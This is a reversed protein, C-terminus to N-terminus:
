ISVDQGGKYDPDCILPLYYNQGWKPHVTWLAQQPPEFEFNCMMAFEDYGSMSGNIILKPTMTLRHFHGVVLTTYLQVFEPMSMAAAKKKMDGRTIPGLPGIIGDGGRFQDGHTMRYRRGAVMFTLDRAPPCDFTVKGAKVLDQCLRELMQCILWDFNTEAYFRAYPKRTNRGHNGPLGKIDVHGFEKVLTRIVKQLNDTMDLTQGMIQRENSQSLDEHLNGSVLDGNLLLVIGEYNNPRLHDRLLRMAKEVTYQLRKRAIDMNYENVGFVEAPNVTQGWHLDSILLVPHGVCGGRPEKFKASWTERPPKYEALEMVAERVSAAGFAEKRLRAIVRNAERLRHNLVEEQSPSPDESLSPTPAATEKKYKRLASLLGQRGVMRRTALRDIADPMGADITKNLVFPLSCEDAIKSAEEFVKQGYSKSEKRM